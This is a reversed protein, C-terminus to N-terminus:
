IGLPNRLTQLMAQAGEGRELGDLLSRATAILRDQDARGLTPLTGIFSALITEADDLREQALSEEDAEERKWETYTPGENLTLGRDRLDKRITERTYLGNLEAEIVRSSKVKGDEDLHGGSAIYDDWARRKDARSLPKGHTTNALRAEELAERRSMRAVQAPLSHRKAKRYAHLRHFGDVVYLAEGIAAVKIPPLEKGAEIQRALKNVHPLSVGDARLQFDRHEHVEDIMLTREPWQKGKATM